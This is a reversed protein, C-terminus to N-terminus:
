IKENTEGGTSKLFDQQKEKKTQKAQNEFTLGINTNEPRCESCSM